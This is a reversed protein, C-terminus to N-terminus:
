ANWADRGRNEFPDNKISIHDLILGKAPATLGADTRLGSQLANRIADPHLRGCTIDICTGVMIRVMNKLFGSGEVCFEIHRYISRYSETVRIAQVTKIPSDQLCGKGRFASFDHTGVLHSASERMAHIDLRKKIWWYYENDLAKSIPTNNIRYIYRKGTNERNISFDREVEVMDLVTIDEPLLSNVSCFLKQLPTKAPILFHAIQGKSHVGADTRSCVRLSIDRRLITHLASLITGEITKADPQRQWGHYRTGKYEIKILVKKAIM